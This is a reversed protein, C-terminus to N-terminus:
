NGRSFNGRSDSKQDLFEINISFFPRKRLFLGFHPKKRLFRGGKQAKAEFRLGFGTKGCFIGRLAPKRMSFASCHRNECLSHRAIGTKGYLIGLLAIPAVLIRILIASKEIIKSTKAL